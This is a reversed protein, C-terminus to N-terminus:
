NMMEIRLLAIRAAEILNKNQKEKMYVKLTTQLRKPDIKANICYSPWCEIATKQLKFLSSQEYVMGTNMSRDSVKVMFKELDEEIDDRIKLHMFTEGVETMVELTKLEAALILFDEKSTELKKERLARRMSISMPVFNQHLMPLLQDPCHRMIRFGTQLIEMLILKPYAFECHHLHQTKMIVRYACDVPWPADREDDRIKEMAMVEKETKMREKEFKERIKELRRWSSQEENSFDDEEESEEDSDQVKEQLDAEDPHTEIELVEIKEMKPEGFWKHLCKLFSLMAKLCPILKLNDNQDIGQLLSPMILRLQEFKERGYGRDLMESLVFPSNPFKKLNQCQEAVKFVVKDVNEAILQDITMNQVKALTELSRRAATSVTLNISSMFKLLCYLLDVAFKHFRSTKTSLLASSHGLITLLTSCYVSESTNESHFDMPKHNGVMFDVNGVRDLETLCMKGNNIVFEEFNKDLKIKNTEYAMKVLYNMVVFAGIKSKVENDQGEVYNRLSVFTKRFFGIKVLSEAIKGLCKSDLCGSLPTSSTFTGFTQSTESIEVRKTDIKVNKVLVLRLKRSLNSKKTREKIFIAKANSSDLLSMTNGLVVFLDASKLSEKLIGDVSSEIFRKCLVQFSQPDKSKIQSILNQSKMRIREWESEMYFLALRFKTEDFDTNELCKSCSKNIDLVLDLLAEQDRENKSRALTSVVFKISEALKEGRKQFFELNRTCGFKASYPNEKEPTKEFQELLSNNLVLQSVNNIVRLALVTFQGTPHKKILRVCKSVVGPLLISAGLPDELADFPEFLDVLKEGCQARISKDITENELLNLLTNVIRGYLVFNEPLLLAKRLEDARLCEGLCDNVHPFLEHVRASDTREDLLPIARTLFSFIRTQLSDHLQVM